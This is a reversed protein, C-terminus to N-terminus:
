EFYASLKIKAQSVGPKSGNRILLLNTANGVKVKLVVNYPQNSAECLEEVILTNGDDALFGIGIEGQSVNVTAHVVLQRGHEPFKDWPVAAEAAYSWPSDSTTVTVESTGHKTSAPAWHQHSVFSTYPIFDELKELAAGSDALPLAFGASNSAISPAYETDGHKRRYEFLQMLYDEYAIRTDTTMLKDLSRDFEERLLKYVRIDCDLFIALQAREDESISYIQREKRVLRKKTGVLPFGFMLHLAFIFRDFAETYGVVLYRHRLTNLIVEDSVHRLLAAERNRFLYCNQPQASIHKAGGALVHKQNPPFNRSVFWELIPPYRDLTRFGGGDPAGSHFRDHLYCSVIREVPDRILTILGTDRLYLQLDESQHGSIIRRSAALEPSEKLRALDENHSEPSGRIVLAEEETFAQPIYSENFTTGATKHIHQFILTGQPNGQMALNIMVFNDFM